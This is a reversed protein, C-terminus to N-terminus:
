ENIVFLFPYVVTVEGEEIAPFRWGYIRSIISSELDPSNMTSSLVDVDKVSGDASIVFEFTIEGAGIDPNKKLEANYLNHIGALHRRVVSNIRAASRGESSAGPCEISTPGAVSVIAMRKKVYSDESPSDQRIGTGRSGSNGLVENSDTVAPKDQGDANNSDEGSEVQEACNVVTTALAALIVVVAKKVLVKIGRPVSGVGKGSGPLHGGVIATRAAPQEASYGSRVKNDM